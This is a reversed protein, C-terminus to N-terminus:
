SEDDAPEKPQTYGTIHWVNMQAGNCQWGRIGISESHCTPCREEQPPKADRDYTCRLAIDPPETPLDFPPSKLTKGITAKVTREVKPPPFEIEDPETPPKDSYSGRRVKREAMQLAVLAAAHGESSGPELQVYCDKIIDGLREREALVAEELAAKNYWDGHAEQAKQVMEVAVAVAADHSLAAGVGPVICNQAAAVEHEVERRLTDDTM